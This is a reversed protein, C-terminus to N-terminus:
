SPNDVTSHWYRACESTEKLVRDAAPSAPWFLLLYSDLADEGDLITDAEDGADMARGCYRVRYDIGSLPLECVVKGFWDMLLAQGAPKFSAEVCEEWQEDRPPESESIV